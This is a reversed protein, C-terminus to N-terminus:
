RPLRRWVDERPWVLTLARISAHRLGLGLSACDARPRAYCYYNVNVEVRTHGLLLRSEQLM